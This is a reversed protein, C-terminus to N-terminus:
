SRSHSQARRGRPQRLTTSHLKAFPRLRLQRRVYSADSDRPYRAGLVEGPTPVRTVAGPFKRRARKQITGCRNQGFRRLSRARWAGDSKAAAVGFHRPWVKRRGRPLSLRDAKVRQARERLAMAAPEGNEGRNRRVQLVVYQN